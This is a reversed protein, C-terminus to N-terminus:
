WSISYCNNEKKLIIYTYNINDRNLHELIKKMLENGDKIDCIKSSFTIDEELSKLDEPNTPGIAVHESLLTKTKSLYVVAVYNSAKNKDYLTLAELGNIAANILDVAKQEGADLKSYTDASVMSFMGTTEVDNKNFQEAEKNQIPKKSCSLLAFASVLGYILIFRITKM